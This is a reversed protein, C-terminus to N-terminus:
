SFVDMVHHDSKIVVCGLCATICHNEFRIFKCSSNVAFVQLTWSVLHFELVAESCQVCMILPHSKYTPSWTHWARAAYVLLLTRLGSWGTGGSRILDLGSVSLGELRLIPPPPHPPPASTAPYHPHPWPSVPSVPRRVCEVSISTPPPHHEQEQM